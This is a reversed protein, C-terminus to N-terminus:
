ESGFDLIAAMAGLKFNYIKRKKGQVSLDISEFTPLCYRSLM